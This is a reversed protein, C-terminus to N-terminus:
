AAPAAPPTFVRAALEQDIMFLATPNDQVLKLKQVIADANSEEEVQENVFWQLMMACAHDSEKIALDMLNNILGTVKIEHKYIQEFVDLPSKWEVPPADIAALKVIGQRQLLYDYFKLAHFQEEQFQVRTWNAFGPLNREAFWASMSLYLYASYFEATIQSNIAKELTKKIM